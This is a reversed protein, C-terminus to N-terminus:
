KNALEIIEKYHYVFVGKKNQKSAALMAKAVNEAHISRYKSPLLFSLGSMLPTAIKETWRFEKRDGVLMSPRMIHISNLGTNKIAEETEGKLKLYFTRSRTNAGVSSVLVFTECGLKKCVAALRVPIEYDIARYLEKDGKVKKQTTGIACFVVDANDIAEYLSDADKFDVIKKVLKAHDGPFARRVLIKVSAYENDNLLQQLLYGGTLGTAGVLVATKSM